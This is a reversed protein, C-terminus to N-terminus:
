SAQGEFRNHAVYPLYILHVIKPIWFVPTISQCGLIGPASIRILRIITPCRLDVGHIDPMKLGGVKIYNRGDDVFPPTTARNTAQQRAQEEFVESWRAEHDFLVSLKKTKKDPETGLGIRSDTVDMEDPNVRAGSGLTETAQQILVKERCGSPKATSFDPGNRRRDVFGGNAKVSRETKMEKGTIAIDIPM